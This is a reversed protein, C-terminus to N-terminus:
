DRSTRALVLEALLRLAIDNYKMLTKIGLLSALKHSIGHGDALQGGFLSSQGPRGGTLVCIFVIM